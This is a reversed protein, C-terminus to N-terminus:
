MRGNERRSVGSGCARLGGCRKRPRTCTRSNHHMEVCSHVKAKESASLTKPEDNTDTNKSEEEAPPETVHGTEEAPFAPTEEEPLSRKLLLIATLIHRCVSRSPCSCESQSLPVGIICREGGTLVTHVGDRTEATLEAGEADKLARKYLGKNAMATLEPEGAARLAAALKVDIDMRARREQERSCDESITEM